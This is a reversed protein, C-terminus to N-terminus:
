EARSEAGSAQQMAAWAQMDGDLHILDDFGEDQLVSIAMGARRGSKCYVVIPGDSAADLEGVRAALQDHPINIAGPVHGQAFEGASRVDLITVDAPPNAALEIPTIERLAVAEGCGVVFGGGFGVLALALLLIQITKMM